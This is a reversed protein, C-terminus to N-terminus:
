DPMYYGGTEETTYVRNAVIVDDSLPYGDVHNSDCVILEMYDANPMFVADVGLDGTYDTTAIYAMVTNYDSYVWDGWTMGEEAQCTTNDITFSIVAAPQANPLDDLNPYQDFAVFRSSFYTWNTATQYSTLLSAPVYISGYCGASKSYGGIPTSTFASSKSLTCLSSGTLYLSTLNYCNYFAYNNITTCSPFVAIRLSSCSSFAQAGITKCSPFSVVTLLSCRIFANKGITTCVPFSISTLSSCMHFASSGITTCNPFDVTTLSYCTGFAYEGMTTCSPFSVATLNECQVFANNYIIECVPFNISTFGGFVFAYSGIETCVPFDAVTLSSCGHFAEWGVKTCVPFDAVTLSSCSRFVEPYIRNCVPFSVTTLSSCNMFAGQYIRSCTPLEISKLKTRNHFAYNGVYAINSNTYESLTGKIMQEEFDSADGGSGEELTGSVGFISVGSKINGAVLNADGKITQIGTLYTGAAITQNTTTPTYTTAAKTATPKVYTSPIAAVTVAGTTYVGSAVATQSSTSPTITKAAQTTLQKTGTKTGASVYGATQTTSATIKGASDVTISPTAQTATAVSKSVSNTGDSATVTAGSASLSITTSATKNAGTVYGTSQNNSATITLKDNTDDATTSITTDARTVATVSKTAQSAYYGAPVTVTAGSATLDSSTKTAISGTVKTGNVYATKGSLIDTAAATASTQAALSNATIKGSGNHYGAPITYSSGCNLSSTKAGQNVMTGTVKSGKVYATKGSLMESAVATADSTDIGDTQLLRIASPFADAAITGTSGNKERIASAIDTFLSTLNSHSNAM